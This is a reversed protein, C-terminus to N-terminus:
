PVMRSALDRFGELHEDKLKFEKTGLKMEVNTGNAIKVFTDYPVSVALSESLGGLRVDSDHEATGLDLREGDALAYLSRDKLFKWDKSKSLFAITANGVPNDLKQGEFTFAGMMFFQSSTMVYDMTGTLVYPGVRVITQDKFKDYSSSIRSKHKLKFKAPPPKVSQALISVAFAFALILLLSITRSYKM